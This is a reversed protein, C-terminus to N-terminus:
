APGEVLSLIFEPCGDETENALWLFSPNRGVGAHRFSSDVQLRCM